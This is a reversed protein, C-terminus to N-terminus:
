PDEPSHGGRRGENWLRLAIPTGFPEDASQFLLKEPNAYKLRDLLESFSQKLELAVVVFLPYQLLV